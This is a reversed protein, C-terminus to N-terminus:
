TEDAPDEKAPSKALGDVFRTIMGPLKNLLDMQVKAVDLCARVGASYADMGSAFYKDAVEDVLQGITKRKNM